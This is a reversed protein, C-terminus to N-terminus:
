LDNFYKPEDQEKSDLKTGRECFCLEKKEM